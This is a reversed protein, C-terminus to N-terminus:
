RNLRFRFSTTQAWTWRAPVNWARWWSRDDCDQADASRSKIQNPQDFRLLKLDIPTAGHDPSGPILSFRM